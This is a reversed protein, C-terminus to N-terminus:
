VRILRMANTQGSVNEHQGTLIICYDGKKILNEKKAFSVGKEVVAETGILSGVEIAIVGRFFLCKRAISKENCIALIPCDFDYPSLYSVSDGTQTICIIM